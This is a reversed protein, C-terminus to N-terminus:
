IKMISKEINTFHIGIDIQVKGYIHDSESIVAFNDFVVDAVAILQEDTIFQASLLDAHGAEALVQVEINIVRIYAVDPNKM